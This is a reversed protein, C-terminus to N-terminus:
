IQTSGLIIALNKHEFENNNTIIACQSQRDGELFIWEITGTNIKIKIKTAVM